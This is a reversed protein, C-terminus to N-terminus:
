GVPPRADFGLTRELEAALVLLARDKGPPAEISLGVPLGEPTIGVPLSIGCWGAATGAEMNRTYAMGAPAWVGPQVELEGTERVPLAPRITTPFVMAEAREAKLAESLIAHLVPRHQERAIAALLGLLTEADRAQSWILKVEPLSIGAILDDLTVDTVDRELFARMDGIMESLLINVGAANALTFLGPIARRVVTVGARSLRSIASRCAAETASDLGLWCPDEPAVLRLGRLPRRPLPAPAEGAMIADLLAADAVSRTMPGIVDRTHSLPAVGDMPLRGVSPRFGVIGCLSAPMRISGVTDTGLGADGLGAAVAAGTGGSSGGPTMAIDTRWPNCIVGFAPSASAGGFALEHMGTKGLCTAGAAELRAWASANAFPRCARLAPTGATMPLNRVAINDKVAILAGALPGIPAGAEVAEDTAVARALAGEEDLTVFANLGALATVRRLTKRVHGQATVSGARIAATLSTLDQMREGGDSSATGALNVAAADVGFARRL